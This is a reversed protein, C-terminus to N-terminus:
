CFIEFVSDANLMVTSLNSFFIFWHINKFKFEEHIKKKKNTQLSFSLMVKKFWLVHSNSSTCTICPSSFFLSFYRYWYVIIDIDRQNACTLARAPLCLLLSPRPQNTTRSHLQTVAMKSTFRLVNPEPFRQPEYPPPLLLLLLLLAVKRECYFIIFHVVQGFHVSSDSTATRGRRAHCSSFRVATATFNLTPASKVWM